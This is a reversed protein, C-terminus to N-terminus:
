IRIARGGSGGVYEGELHGGIRRICIIAGMSDTRGSIDRENEHM